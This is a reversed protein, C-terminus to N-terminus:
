DPDIVEHKVLSILAELPIPVLVDAIALAQAKRDGDTV